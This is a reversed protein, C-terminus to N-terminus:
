IFSISYPKCELSWKAVLDRLNAVEAGQGVSKLIRQVLALAAENVLPLYQEVASPRLM